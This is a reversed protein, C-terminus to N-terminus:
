GPHLGCLWINEFHQDDFKEFEVSLKGGPTRVEVRNFGKDNHASMLASATVGTGVSHKMRWVGNTPVCM